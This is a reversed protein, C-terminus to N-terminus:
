PGGPQGAPALVEHLCRGTVSGPSGAIQELTGTATVCGGHVGGGPGNARKVAKSM